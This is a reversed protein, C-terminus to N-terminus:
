ANKIYGWANCEKNLAGEPNLKVFWDTAKDLTRTKKAKEEKLTYGAQMLVSSDEFWIGGSKYKAILYVSHKSSKSNNGWYYKYKGNVNSSSNSAQSETLHVSVSAASASVTGGLIGFCMIASLLISLVKKKM